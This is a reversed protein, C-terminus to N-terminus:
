VFKNRWSKRRESAARSQIWNQNLSLKRRQWRSHNSDRHAPLRHAKVKSRFEKKDSDEGHLKLFFARSRWEKQPFYQPPDM